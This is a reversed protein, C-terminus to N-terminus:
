LYDEEQDLYDLYGQRDNEQSLEEEWFYERCEDCLWMEYDEDWALHDEEMCSDCKDPKKTPEM